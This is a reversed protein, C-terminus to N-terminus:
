DKLMKDLKIRVEKFGDKTDNKRHFTYFLRLTHGMYPDCSATFFRDNDDFEFLIAIEVVETPWNTGCGGGGWPEPFHHQWVNQMATENVYM